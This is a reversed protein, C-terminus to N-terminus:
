STSANRKCAKRGLTGRRVPQKRPVVKKLVKRVRRAPQKGVVNKEHGQDHVPYKRVIKRVRSNVFQHKKLLRAWAVQPKKGNADEMRRRTKLRLSRCRKGRKWPIASQMPM